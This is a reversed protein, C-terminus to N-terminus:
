TELVVTATALTDTHSLSVHSKTAGSKKFAALAHGHFRLSTAGSAEDRVVEIEDFGLGKAWGTGLAKLAAEKAAFRAALHQEPHPRALCYALEADTFVRAAFAEAKDRWLRAIRGVEVIDTGIGTIM